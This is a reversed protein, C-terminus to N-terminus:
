IKYLLKFYNSSVLPVGNISAIGESNKNYYQAYIDVRPLINYMYEIAVHNSLHWRLSLNGGISLHSSALDYSIANGRTGWRDILTPEISPIIVTKIKGNGIYAYVPFHYGIGTTFKRFQIAKFCEYGVNVELNKGVMGFQLYYDLENKSHASDSGAILNKVDLAGSFYVYHEKSNQALISTTFLFFLLKKM